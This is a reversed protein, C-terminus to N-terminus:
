LPFLPFCLSFAVGPVEKQDTFGTGTGRGEDKETKGAMSGGILCGAIRWGSAGRDEISCTYGEAAGVQEKKEKGGRLCVQM